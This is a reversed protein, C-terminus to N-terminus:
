PYSKFVIEFNYAHPAKTGEGTVYGYPQSLKQEGYFDMRYDSSFSSQTVNFLVSGKAGNPNTVTIKFQANTGEFFCVGDDKSRFLAVKTERAYPITFPGPLNKDTDCNGGVDTIVFKEGAPIQPTWGITASLHSVSSSAQASPALGGVVGCLMLVGTLGCLGRMFTPANRWRRRAGATRAVFKLQGTYERENM